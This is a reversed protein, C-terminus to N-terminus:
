AKRAPRHLAEQLSKGTISVAKRPVGLCVLHFVAAAFAKGGVLELPVTKGYSNVESSYSWDRWGFQRRELSALPKCAKLFFFIFFIWLDLDYKM